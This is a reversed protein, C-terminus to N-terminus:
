LGLKKFYDPTSKRAERLQKKLEKLKTELEAIDEEISGEESSKEEETNDITLERFDKVKLAAGLEKALEKTIAFIAAKSADKHTDNRVFHAAYIADREWTGEYGRDVQPVFGERKDKLVMRTM